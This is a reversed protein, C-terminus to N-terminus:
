GEVDREGRMEGTGIRVVDDVGGGIGEASPGRRIGRGPIVRSM